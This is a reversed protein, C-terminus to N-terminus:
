ENTINANSSLPYLRYLTVKVGLEHAFDLIHSEMREAAASPDQEVIADYIGRHRPIVREWREPRALSTHRSRMGQVSLSELVSALIPNACKAIAEHLAVDALVMSSLDAQRAGFEFAELNREMESLDHSTRGLAAIAAARPEIALRAEVITDIDWRYNSPWDSFPPDATGDGELEAVFAGKGQHLVILGLAELARLAERITSRGVGLEDKLARESPLRQGPGYEGSQILDRLRRIVTDILPTRHIPALLRHGAAEAVEPRFATLDRHGGAPWQSTV